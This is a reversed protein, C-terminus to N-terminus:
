GPGRLRHPYYPAPNTSLPNQVRQHTRASGLFKQGEDTLRGDPNLYGLRRAMALAEEIDLVTLNTREALEIAQGQRLRGRVSTLVVSLRTEEPLLDAAPKAKITLASAEAREALSGVGFAEAAEEGPPGIFLPTWGGGSAHLLDPANNPTRYSFAVLAGTGAYGLGTGGRIGSPGYNKALMRWAEAAAADPHTKLTRIVYRTQVKPRLRHAEVARLGEKTAAAAAVGFEVLGSSVWSRVTPTAWLKDLMGRVRTGSGIFDTVIAIMGVRGSRIRDPGPHNLFVRPDREVAQSVFFAMWGESGVRSSGRRPQVARPGKRGVARMRTIGDRDPTLESRFFHKEAIEREAYLACKKRSKPRQQALTHLESRIARGVDDENLLLFADLFAGAAVHDATKFSSRIWNRVHSLSSLKPRRAIPIRTAM